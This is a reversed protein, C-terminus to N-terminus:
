IYVTVPNLRSNTNTTESDSLMLMMIIIAAVLMEGDMTLLVELPLRQAQVSCKTCGHKVREEDATCPELLNQLALTSVHLRSM